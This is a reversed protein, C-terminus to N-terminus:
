PHEEEEPEPTAAPLDAPEIWGRWGGAPSLRRCLGPRGARRGEGLRVARPAGPRRCRWGWALATDSMLGLDKHLHKLPFAPAYDGCVLTGIKRQILNSVVPSPLFIAGMAEMSIGGQVALAMAEALSDFQAAVMLNFALKTM